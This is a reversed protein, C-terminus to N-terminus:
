ASLRPTKVPKRKNNAQTVADAWRCNEPSYPGDNNIRDLTYGPPPDGMDAYFNAPDRWRDCVTIGRGGYDKWHKNAPNTCRHLMKAWRQYWPESYLGHRTNLRQMRERAKERQLCGCSLRLPFRVTVENGCDCRCLWLPRRDSTLGRPQLAVLRGHRAGTHDKTAM